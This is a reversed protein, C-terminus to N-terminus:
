NKKYAGVSLGLGIMTALLSSGGASVLPFPLGTVPFIGMNMGAHIVIQVLYTLFFGAVYARAAPSQSNEMIRILRILIVFSAALLLFVGVFGLEEAISAFMFDTQKEPLFALQTQTGGGLGTGFIKGSGAAITAQISNYGAGFPDRTPQLFTTIRQKQYPELFHWVVPILPLILLFGILIYKKNFKSAMIVGVFGIIILFSVSFSPQVLVLIVPLFLLALAKLFKKLDIGTNSLYNAFFLILFPRVLEAPQFSGSGFQIWRVTHRTVQGVILTLVLLFVSGIYFYKSFVSAIEFGIASFVWFFLIAILFYVFYGPFLGSNLSFLMVGGLLLLFIVAFFLIPDRTLFRNSRTM